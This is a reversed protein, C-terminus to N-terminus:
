TAWMRFVKQPPLDAAVVCSTSLINTRRGVEGILNFDPWLIVLWFVPGTFGEGSQQIAWNMQAANRPEEGRRHRLGLQVVSFPDLGLTALGMSAM